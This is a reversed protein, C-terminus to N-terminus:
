YSEGETTAAYSVIFMEDTTKDFTLTSTNSTILRNNADKGIGSFNGGATGYLIPIDAAGDKLPFNELVVYTDSGQRVEIVEETPYTAGGYSMKVAEFGPMTIETGETIFLDDDANWTIEISTLTGTDSMGSANVITSSLGPIAQDNIQIESGSTLKLKGSGISFEVKKIGGAYDQVSIDKIGVYSGDSLKYTSAEALSNTTEGNVNLKVETTSIFDIAVEYSTGDVDLTKTEGESVTTDVASDLLTLILNAGSTSNSLVYYEKGMIPLLTTTIDAITPQDSFTITYNLVNQGSAIRFGVTPENEAYDNDEFMSLISGNLEIKQTYDFEDNDNDLFVGDALLTPLEGDDLTTIISTIADGIHYKISTKEVKYSDGGTVTTVGGVAQASLDKALDASIDTAAVMDSAEAGNTGVVIAVNAAGNQVFPTPYAAAAALGITSGVMLASGLVTAIKKFKM